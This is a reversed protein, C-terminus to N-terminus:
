AGARRERPGATLRLSRGSTTFAPVSRWAGHTAQLKVPWLRSPHALWRRAEGSLRPLLRKHGTAPPAVAPGRAEGPGELGRTEVTCPRLRLGKAGRLRDRRPRPADPLAWSRALTSGSTAKRRLSTPLGHRKRGM